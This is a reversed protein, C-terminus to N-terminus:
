EVIITGKMNSHIACHYAFTGATNFTHSYIGDRGFNPSSLETGSDSTITHSSSDKNTWKVTDGQKITLTSPSFAFNQTSINYTQSTGSTSTNEPLTGTQSNNESSTNPPVNNDNSSQQTTLLYIGAGILFIGLILFIIKM